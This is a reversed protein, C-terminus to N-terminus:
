AGGECPCWRLKGELGTGIHSSQVQRGVEQKVGGGPHGESLEEENQRLLILMDVQDRTSAKLFSM